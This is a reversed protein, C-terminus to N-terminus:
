IRKFPIVKNWSIFSQALLYFHIPTHKAARFARCVLPFLRVPYFPLSCLVRIPGRLPKRSFFSTRINTFTRLNELVLLCCVPKLIEVSGNGSSYPHICYRTSKSFFNSHLSLAYYKQNLSLPAPFVRRLHVPRHSWSHLDHLAASAAPVAPSNNVSMIVPALFILRVM